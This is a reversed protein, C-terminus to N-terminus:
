SIGQIRHPKGDNRPVTVHIVAGTRTRCVTGCCCVYRGSM